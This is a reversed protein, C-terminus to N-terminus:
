LFAVVKDIGSYECTSINRHFLYFYTCVDEAENLLIGPLPFKKISFHIKKKGCVLEFFKTSIVQRWSRKENCNQASIEM